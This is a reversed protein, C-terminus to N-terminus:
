MWRKESIETHYLLYDYIQKALIENIYPISISGSANMLRISALSRRKHFISQKFEVSQIKYLEMQKWKQSIAGSSVRIQDNNIRFYRKKLVLYNYGATSLLWTCAVLWFIWQSYLFPAALIVPLWGSFIWLIRFYYNNSYFKPTETLKDKGFLDTKLLELHKSLCGPADVLKMKPDQKSVAQKFILKYIGFQKKLPNTEWNIEQIKNHPVLVNRKNILGAEIRYANEKKLLKFDYYKFLTRFLSFLVSVILFFITLFIILALSSNSIYNAFESSYEDAKEKFIDQVQNFIQYGFALIILGTRLHNETIGIKLLDLPSLKLVLKESDTIESSEPEVQGLSSKTKNKTNLLENLANAFPKELAHIKLEKGATGATDIELATVNLLQQILNQKTNISQIRDLPITLVKKRLYGKKLIFEGNKVYFYFNLYYLISHIILLALVVLLGIGIILKNDFLSKQLILVAILAWFMRITTRISQLFIFVLGKISQRTPKTLDPNNM